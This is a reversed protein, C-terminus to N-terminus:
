QNINEIGREDLWNANSPTTYMQQQFKNLQRVYFTQDDSRQQNIFKILEAFDEKREQRSSSLLYNTLQSSADLQQQQLSQAYETLVVQQNRQFESVKEDVLKAVAQSRLEGGFSITMAGDQVNVQVGGIVMVIALMSTGLSLAPLGQWQWWKATKPQSFTAERNWEPVDFSDYDKAQMMAMNATEVQAAFGEDASCLQEFQQRQEDSLTDDLWAALLETQNMKPM